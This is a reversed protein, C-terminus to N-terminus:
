VCRSLWREIGAQDRAVLLSRLRRRLAARDCHSLKERVELLTAPHLSFATLGLALLLPTLTADGAIEGCVTVEMRAQRGCQLIGHLLQILAPHLPSYLDGLSPHNRDAALLYQVLDNTGVAVFDLQDRLQPLTLAAAPVEIMAGLTPEAVESAGDAILSQRAMRLAARAAILEERRSVMPLLIRVPGYESARLIARLQSHFLAPHSLSLRIGRLGLAPNPEDDLTLGAGDAKDAGLDLTRITVPRGDMALVADRYRAFQEDESPPESRQLFLFETRYLGVGSAGLRRALQVDDASEANAYLGIRQGDRTVSPAHRLRGLRRRERAHDRVGARYRRLDASSPSVVIQGSTGDIMVVDGDAIRRLGEGGSFVLPMHLSRALIASHSLTSGTDAIVAVVGRSQLQALEAPAVSHVVLIEGSAEGPLAIQQRHLATQVRGIVHDLDERRSRFYPDDMADFVAALRDHQLRLAYEASFRGDRVLSEIGLRLEPDDLILAHLDLFDGIEQAIAGHLRDRLQHLEDRAETMARDLRDLETELQDAEIRQESTDLAHPQRVLARGLALGRSAGQGDIVVRM